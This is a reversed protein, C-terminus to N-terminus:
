WGRSSYTEPEVLTYLRLLLKRYRAKSRVIASLKWWTTNSILANVLVMEVVLKIFEDCTTERYNTGSPVLPGVTTQVLPGVVTQVLPGVITIVLPGVITIVLLGVITQVLPGVITQVLSGVITQVLPGVITVLPGVITQVLSGVITLVLHGVFTLVLPGVITVVPGVFSYGYDMSWCLLYKNRM